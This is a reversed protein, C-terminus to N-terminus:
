QRTVAPRPVVIGDRRDASDVPNIPRVSESNAIETDQTAGAVKGFNTAEGIMPTRANYVRINWLRVPDIRVFRRRVPPTGAATNSQGEM